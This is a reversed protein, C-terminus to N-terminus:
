RYISELERRYAASSYLARSRAHARAAVELAAGPDALAQAIAAALAAADDEVAVFVESGGIGEAGVSTAVVPVGWLMATVAKLKV